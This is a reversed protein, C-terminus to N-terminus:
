NKTVYYFELILTTERFNFTLDVSFLNQISNLSM